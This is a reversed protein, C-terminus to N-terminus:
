CTLHWGNAWWPSRTSSWCHPRRSRATRTRASAPSRPRTPSRCFRRRSPAILATNSPDDTQAEILEMELEEIRETCKDSPVYILKHITTAPCGKERLVLAAKGTFCAYLVEGGVMPEFEKAVSTKGTGAYGILRFVQKDPDKLWTRIADLASSQQKSLNM